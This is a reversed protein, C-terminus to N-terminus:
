LLIAERWGPDAEGAPLIVLADAWAIGTLMGSGQVGVLRARPMSGDEPWALTARLYLDLSSDPTVADELVVRMTRPVPAPDGSMASIMPRGFLEFTVLASVPNGPLALWPRGDTLLAFSTPGGPRVKVRSVLERAGLMAMATHVQDHDGVSIGGATIIADCDRAGEVAAVIEAADDGALLQAGVIAGSARVLASLAPGNVDALKRCGRVAEVDAAPVLEDGGAIVAIRPTRVVMPQTEALAALLALQRPGVRTGARLATMGAAIDGGARRVNTGADRASHIAVVTGGRDTDEQRIVTDAGDPVRAGTFIRVATGAVLPAHYEGGAASCGAVPLPTPADPTAGHVDAARVAYGDMSANTWPPLPFSAVIDAAIIRGISDELPMRVSPQARVNALITAIADGVRIADNM